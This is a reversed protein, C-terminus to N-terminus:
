LFTRIYQFRVGDPMGGSKVIYAYVKEIENEYLLVFTGPKQAEQIPVTKSTYVIPAPANNTGKVSSPSPPASALSPVITDPVVQLIPPLPKIVVKPTCGGTADRWLDFKATIVFLDQRLMPAQPQFTDWNRTTVNYRKATAYVREEWTAYLRDDLQAMCVSKMLMAFTEARTSVTDPHFLINETSILGLIV